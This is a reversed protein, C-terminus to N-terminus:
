RIKRIKHRGLCYIRSPPHTLRLPEIVIDACARAFAEDYTGGSPNASSSYAWGLRELLLLHRRDRVIRYADGKPFIFTTRAARRLRKRHSLPVRTRERLAALSPLVRLYPMGTPRGKARDLVEASQSLFGVTTDTSTLFLTEQSIM